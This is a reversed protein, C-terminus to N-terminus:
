IKPGFSLWLRHCGGPMVEDGVPPRFYEWICLKGPPEGVYRAENEDKDDPPNDVHDEGHLLVIVLLDTLKMDNATM